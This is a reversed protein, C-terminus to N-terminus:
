RAVAVSGDASIVAIADSIVYMYVSTAIPATASSKTNQIVLTNAPTGCMAINDSEDFRRASQGSIYFRQTSVGSATYSGQTNAGVDRSGLGVVQPDLLASLSRQTELLNQSDFSVNYSCLQKSDLYFKRSVTNDEVSNRIFSNRVNIINACADEAEVSANIEGYLVASVSSLNLGVNYSFSTQGASIATQLGLASSYPIEYLKGSQQMQMRIQDLLSYDPQILEYVLENESLTYGTIGTPSTGYSKFAALASNMDLQLYLGSLFLPFSKENSLVGSCLPICFNFVGSDATGTTIGTNCYEAISSDREVYSPNMAATQLMAHYNDYRSIQELNVGNANLQYRNILSAASATENAFIVVNDANGGATKAVTCKGRWFLSGARLLGASNTGGPITWNLSGSANANGSQSPLSLVQNRTPVAKPVRQSMMSSPIVVDPVGQKTPASYNHPFNSM